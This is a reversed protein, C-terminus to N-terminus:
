KKFRSPLKLKNRLYWKKPDSKLAAIMKPLTKRLSYQPEWDLIKKAKSIDLEMHNDAMDIMWPKIFSDGFIGQVWAGTKAILKPIRYTKFAEGHILRGIEKQLYEYSLTEPEGINITIDAPLEARKEVVKVIAEVLDNIHVFPNGHTIEGPFFHATIQNEYIRQIHNALPISNGTDNYVGAIRLIVVPINARESHLIAESKIKSEPYDWGPALPWDENIKQGPRSPAYVLLSSSFIFQKVDFNQLAKLLKQTGQVTIKDYLPSPKGSFDYYAAFHIVSAIKNGYGSRIQAMATKISEESAIDMHIFESTNQYEGRDTGVVRYQKSLRSMVAGGIFGSGGTIIIVDKEKKTVEEDM